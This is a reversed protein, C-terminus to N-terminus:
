ELGELYVRHIATLLSKPPEGKSVFADTGAARAARESESSFGLAVVKPQCDLQHLAGVLDGLPGNRVYNRWSARLAAANPLEGAPSLWSDCPGEDGGADDEPAGPAASDVRNPRCSGRNAFGCSM